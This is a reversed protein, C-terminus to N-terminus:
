FEGSAIWAINLQRAEIEFGDPELEVKAYMADAAHVIMFLCTTTGCKAEVNVTVRPCILRWEGGVFRFNAM